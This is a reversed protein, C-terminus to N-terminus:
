NLKKNDVSYFYIDNSGYKQETVVRHQIGDSTTVHWYIHRVPVVDNIYQTSVMEWKGKNLSDLLEHM